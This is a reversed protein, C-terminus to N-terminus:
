QTPRHVITFDYRGVPHGDVVLELAWTGLTSVLEPQIKNTRWVWGGTTTAPVRDHSVLAVSGDPKLWKLEVPIAIGTRHLGYFFTVPTRAPFDTIKAPINAQPGSETLSGIPQSTTFYAYRIVRKANESTFREGPKPALTAANWPQVGPWSYGYQGMCALWQNYAGANIGEGTRIRGDPLVSYNMSYSTQRTCSDAAAYARDQAPTTTISACGAGLACLVVVILRM